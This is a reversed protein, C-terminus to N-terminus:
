GGPALPAAPIRGPGPESCGRSISLSRCGSRGGRGRGPGRDDSLPGRAGPYKLEQLGVTNDQTQLLRITMRLGSAIPLAAQFCLGLTVAPAVNEERRKERERRKGGGEEEGKSEAKGRGM